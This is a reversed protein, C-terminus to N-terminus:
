SGVRRVRMRAQPRAADGARGGRWRRPAARAAASAGWGVAIAGADWVGAGARSRRCSPRRSAALDPRGARRGGRPRRARRAAGLRARVAPRRAAAGPGSRRHPARQPGYHLRSGELIMELLLEYEARPRRGRVPPRWGPRVRSLRRRSMPPQEALTRWRGGQERLAGCRRRASMAAGRVGRRGGRGDARRGRRTRWRRSGRRSSRRRAPLRRAGAAGPLLAGYAEHRLGAADQTTACRSPETFFLTLLGTVSQVSCRAARARRQTACATPSGSPSSAGAARLGRADLQTSRRWGPRSRWRTGRCRARRTSTAPRARDAGDARARGGYAAAPLGGGIIKGM